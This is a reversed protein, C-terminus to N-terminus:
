RALLGAYEQPVLLHSAYVPTAEVIGLLDLVLADVAGYCYAHVHIGPRSFMVRATEVSVGSIDEITLVHPSAARELAARMGM